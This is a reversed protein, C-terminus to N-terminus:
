GQPGKLQRCEQCGEYCRIVYKGGKGDNAWPWDGQDGQNMHDLESYEPGTEPHWDLKGRGPFHKAHHAEAAAVAGAHDTPESLHDEDKYGKEHLVFHRPSNATTQEQSNPM